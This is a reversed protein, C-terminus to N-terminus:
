DEEKAAGLRIFRDLEYSDAEMVMNIRDWLGMWASVSMHSPRPVNTGAVVVNDYNVELTITQLHRM